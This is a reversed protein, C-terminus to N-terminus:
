VVSAILPQLISSQEAVRGKIKAMEIKLTVVETELRAQGKIIKALMPELRALTAKIDTIDRETDSM